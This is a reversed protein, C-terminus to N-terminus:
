ARYITGDNTQKVELKNIDVMHNILFDVVDTMGVKYEDLAQPHDYQQVDLGSSKMEAVIEDFTKPEDELIELIANQLEQDDSIEQRRKIKEVRRELKKRKEKEREFKEKLLEYKQRHVADEGKYNGSLLISKLVSDENESAQIGDNNEVLKYSAEIMDSLALNKSGVHDDESYPQPYYKDAMRQLKFKTEQSIYGGALVKEGEKEFHNCNEISEATCISEGDEGSEEETKDPKDETM